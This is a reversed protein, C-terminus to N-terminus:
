RLLVDWDPDLEEARKETEKFYESLRGEESLKKMFNIFQEKPDLNKRSSGKRLKEDM